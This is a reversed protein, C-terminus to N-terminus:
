CFFKEGYIDDIKVPRNIDLLQLTGCQDQIKDQRQSRVQRVLTDLDLVPTNASGLEPFKAPPNVAIERWDLELISCVEVFIQREIPQGTFFKWISQRTKLGVEGALNEQTWGKRAFAHKAQEIGLLSAQLSRKVM